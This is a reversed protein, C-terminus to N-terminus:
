KLSSKKHKSRPTFIKKLENTNNEIIKLKRKAEIEALEEKMQSYTAYLTDFNSAVRAKMISEALELGDLLKAERNPYKKDELDSVIGWFEKEDDTM